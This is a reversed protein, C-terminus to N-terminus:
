STTRLTEINRQTKNEQKAMEALHSISIRIAAISQRLSDGKPFNVHFSPTIYVCPVTTATGHRSVNMGTKIAQKKKKKSENLLNQQVTFNHSHEKM